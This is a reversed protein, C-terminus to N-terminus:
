AIRVSEISEGVRQGSVPGAVVPRELLQWSQVHTTLLQGDRGNPVAVERLGARWILGALVGDTHIHGQSAVPEQM